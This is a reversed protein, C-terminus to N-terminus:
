SLVGRSSPHIRDASKPGTRWLATAKAESRRIPSRRDCGIEADASLVPRRRRLPATPAAARMRDVTSSDGTLRGRAAAAAARSRRTPRLAHCLSARTSPLCHSSSINTLSQPRHRFSDAARVCAAGPVCRTRSCRVPPPASCALDGYEDWDSAWRGWQRGDSAVIRPASIGPAPAIGRVCVPTRAGSALRKKEM